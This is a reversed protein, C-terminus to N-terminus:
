ITTSLSPRFCKSTWGRRQIMSRVKPQILRQQLSARSLSTVGNDASAKKMKAAALIKSLRGARVNHFPNVLGLGTNGELSLEFVSHSVQQHVLAGIEGGGKITRHLRGM